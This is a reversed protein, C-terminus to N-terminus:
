TAPSTMNGVITRIRPRKQNGILKAINGRIRHLSILPKKNPIANYICLLKKLKIKERYHTKMDMNLPYREM